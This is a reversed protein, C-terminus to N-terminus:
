SQKAKIIADEFLNLVRHYVLREGIMGAWDDDKIYEAKPWADNRKGEAIQADLKNSQNQIVEKVALLPNVPAKVSEYAFLLEDKARLKAELEVRKSYAVEKLANENAWSIQLRKNEAEAKDLRDCLDLSKTRWRKLKLTTLPHEIFKKFDKTFEGAPPQEQRQDLRDCAERVKAQLEKDGKEYRDGSITKRLWDTLDNAPPQEKHDQLKCVSTLQTYRWCHEYKNNHKFFECGECNPEKATRLLTLAQIENKEVVQIVQRFSLHEIGEQIFSMNQELIEIAEKIETM